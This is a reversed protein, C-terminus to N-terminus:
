GWNPFWQGLIYLECTKNAIKVIKESLTQSFTDIDCQPHRHVSSRSHHNESLQWGFVCPM